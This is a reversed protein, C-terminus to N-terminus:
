YGMRKLYKGIEKFKMEHEDNMHVIISGINGWRPNDKNYECGEICSWDDKCAPCSIYNDTHGLDFTTRLWEDSESVYGGISVNETQCALIGLACYGQAKKKEIDWGELYNGIIQLEQDADMLIQSMKRNM